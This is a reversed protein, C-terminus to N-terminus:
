WNKNSGIDKRMQIELEIRLKKMKESYDKAYSTTEMDPTVYKGGTIKGSKLKTLIESFDMAQKISLERYNDLIHLTKTSAVLRLNDFEAFSKSIQSILKSMEEYINKIMIALYDNSNTPDRIINQYISSQKIIFNSIFDKSISENLKDLKLLSEQYIPLRINRIHNRSNNIFAFLWGLGGMIGIVITIINSVNDKLLFSLINQLM